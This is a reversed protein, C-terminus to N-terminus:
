EVVPEMAEGGDTFGTFADYFACQTAVLYVNVLLQLLMSVTDSLVSGFVSSLLSAAMVAAMDLLVFFLELSFLQLKRGEMIERSRRICAMIGTEPRDALVVSAMACRLLSQVVPVTMLAISATVLASALGTSTLLGSFASYATFIYLGVGPLAWLAAKLYVLLNLAIAKLACPLRQLIIGFDPETNGRLLTLLSWTLGLSLAPTIIWMVAQVIWSLLLGNQLFSMLQREWEDISYLQAATATEYFVYLRDSLSGGTLTTVVTSLIGPLLALLGAVLAFPMAPKLAQWARRRLIVNPVYNSKPDM